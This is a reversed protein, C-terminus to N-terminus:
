MALFGGDKSLLTNPACPDGQCVVLRDVPPESGAAASDIGAARLRKTISWNFPCSASPLEHLQHLGHVELARHLGPTVTVPETPLGALESM